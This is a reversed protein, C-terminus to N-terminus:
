EKKLGKLYDDLSVLKKRAAAEIEARERKAKREAMWAVWEPFANNEAEVLTAIDDACEDEADGDWDDWDEEHEHEGLCVYAPAYKTKKEQLDCLGVWVALCRAAFEEDDENDLQNMYHNVWEEYDVEYDIEVERMVRLTKKFRLTTQAPEHFTM